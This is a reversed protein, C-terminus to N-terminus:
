ARKPEVTKVTFNAYEAILPAMQRFGIKGDGLIPGYTQGDDRWNLIPLDSIRFEILAGMKVVRIRYPGASQAVSPIPDAGQAVMYFGHSKRLNCLHFPIEKPARRRFYSIHLANIDGHHYQDYPGSRPKLQPDFIDEGNRGQASFFLICLGPEALPWFDWSIEINDSFQRPCWHVFNADQGEEADRLNEMRMRGRPFSVAAEGEMRWGAIDAPTALANQYITATTQYTMATASLGLPKPQVQAHSVNCLATLSLAGAGFTTTQLFKKKEM